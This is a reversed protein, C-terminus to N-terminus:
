EKYKNIIQKICVTEGAKQKKIRKKRNMQEM